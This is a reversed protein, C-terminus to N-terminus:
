RIRAEKQGYRVKGKWGIGDRERRWKTNKYEM